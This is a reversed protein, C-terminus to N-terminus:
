CESENRCWLSTDANAANKVFTWLQVSNGGWGSPLGGAVAGNFDAIDANFLDMVSPSTFALKGDSPMSYFEDDRSLQSNMNPMGTVQTTMYELYNSGAEHNLGGDARTLLKAGGMLSLHERGRYTDFGRHGIGLLNDASATVAM